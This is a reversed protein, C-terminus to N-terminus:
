EDRKLNFPKLTLPNFPKEDAATATQVPVGEVKLEKVKLGKLGEEGMASQFRAVADQFAAGNVLVCSAAEALPLATLDTSGQIAMVDISPITM